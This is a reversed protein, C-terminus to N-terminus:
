AAQAEISRGSSGPAADAESIQSASSCPQSITLNKGATGAPPMAAILAKRPGNGVSCNQGVPPMLSALRESQNPTGPTTAMPPDQNAGSSLTLARSQSAMVSM